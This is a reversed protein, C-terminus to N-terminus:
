VNGLVEMWGCGTAYEPKDIPLKDLLKNIPCQRQRQVDSVMCTDCAMKCALAVTNLEDFSLWRGQDRYKDAPSRKGVYTLVNTHGMQRGMHLAQDCPMSNILDETAQYVLTAATKLRKRTQETQAIRRELWKNELVDELMNSAAFVRIVEDQEGKNARRGEKSGHFHYCRGKIEVAGM